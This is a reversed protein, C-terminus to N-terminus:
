ISWIFCCDINNQSRLYFFLSIHYREYRKSVILKKSRFGLIADDVAWCDKNETSYLPLDSRCHYGIDRIAIILIASAVVSERSSSPFKGKHHVGDFQEDRSTFGVRRTLQKLSMEKSNCRKGNLAVQMWTGNTSRASERRSYIRKEWETM